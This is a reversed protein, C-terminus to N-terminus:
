FKYNLGAVFGYDVKPGNSIPSKADYNHYFNLSISFDKLMEWSITIDGDLRIREKQSLSFFATQTTSLSFNPKNFSFFNYNGLLEWEVSTNRQNNINHEENIVFGTISKGQSHMRKLFKYGIGVGQQLRSLLGLEINSQYRLSVGTYWRNNILYNCSLILNEREKFTHISDTTIIMSGDLDTEIKKAVYKASGNINFRGLNSSKTYSYGAGLRGSFGDKWNKAYFLLSIINTLKIEVVGNDTLINIYGPKDSSEIYGYLLKTDPTEVRYLHSKAKITTVKDYKISVDGIGDGDFEIRGLKIKKFEGILLTKNYFFLTDKIQCFCVATFLLLIITIGTKM